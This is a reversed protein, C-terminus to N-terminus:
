NTEKDSKKTFFDQMQHYYGIAFRGQDEMSLHKPFDNIEGCIEQLLIEFYIRFKDDLKGLHHKSLRVLNPFVNAPTSSAAGYFRDRITANIRRLNAELQIKELTAFLRGLRYGINTNELDIAVQIKRENNNKTDRFRNLCAKLISARAFTVQQEARCRNLVALLLTRPYPIGQLIAHMLCGELNPPINESKGQVATSVLIRFVSLFGSEYEPHVMELDQFHKAINGEMEGVTSCIWFRIALRAANPSLGLVFFRKKGENHTLAGDHPSELLKRVARVGRDPDDKPPEMFLSPFQKELRNEEAGWFVTSAEGVQMRNPSDKDLLTNLATTYAFTVSKGVPANEGKKRGHSCFSDCNFSVINTGSPKGGWVGMIAPHLTAISTRQGSVLCVTEADETVKVNNTIAAKVASASCILGVEGALKFAVNASSKLLTEWLPFAELATTKEKLPMALFTKLARFGVDDIEGLADIKERFAAHKKDGDKKLTVGIAYEPNDWMLNAAIGSTKKAGQPVVFKKTRKAKGSGEITCQIDVPKGAEDLVIVYPIEKSEWGEAAIGSEPDGAKRDYYSCLAQLIM